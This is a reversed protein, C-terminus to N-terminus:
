FGNAYDYQTFIIYLGTNYPITDCYLAWYTGGFYTYDGNITPYPFTNNTCSVIPSVVPSVTPAASSSTSSSTPNSVLPTGWYFDDFYFTQNTISAFSVLVSGNSSTANFIPSLYQTWGSTTVTLLNGSGSLNTGPLQILIETTVNLYLTQYWFSFQYISGPVLGSVNQALTWPYDGGLVVSYSYNGCHGGPVVGHFLPLPETSGLYPGDGWDTMDGTEFSPNLVLNAPSAGCAGPISPSLASASSSSSTTLNTNSSTTVVSTTTPIFPVAALSVPPNWVFSQAPSVSGSVSPLGVGGNCIIDGVLTNTHTATNNVLQFDGITLPRDFMQCSVSMSGGINAYNPPALVNYSLYVGVCTGITGYGYCAALCRQFLDNPSSTTVPWDNIPLFYAYVQASQITSNLVRINPTQQVSSTCSAGSCALPYAINCSSPINVFTPGGARKDLNFLDSFLSSTLGSCFLIVLLVFLGFM